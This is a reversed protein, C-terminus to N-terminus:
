VQGLVTLEVSGEIGTLRHAVSEEVLPLRQGTAPRRRHRLIANRAVDKEAQHQQRALRSAEEDLGGIRRCQCPRQLIVGRCNFRRQGFVSNRAAPHQGFGEARLHYPLNDGAVFERRLAHDQGAAEHPM